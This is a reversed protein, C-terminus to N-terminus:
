VTEISDMWFGQRAIEQGSAHLTLDFKGPHPLPLLLDYFACQHSSLPNSHDVGGPPVWSWVLEGEADHLTMSLEYHGHGSSIQVYVSARLQTPFSTRPLAIRSIPGLLLYDGTRGDAIIRRCIVFAQAQPVPLNGSM